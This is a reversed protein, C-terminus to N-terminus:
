LNGDAYHCSATQSDAGSLPEQAGSKQSRRRKGKPVAQDRGGARSYLRIYYFLMSYLLISYPRGDRPIRAVTALYGSWADRERPTWFFLFLVSCPECLFFQVYSIFLLCMSVIFFTFTIFVLMSYSYPECQPLGTRRAAATTRRPGRELTTTRVASLWLTLSTVKPGPAGIKRLSYVLIRKMHKRNAEDFLQSHGVYKDLIKNISYRNVPLPCLPFSHIMRARVLPHLGPPASQPVM